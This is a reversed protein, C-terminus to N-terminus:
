SGGRRGEKAAVAVWVMSVYRVDLFLAREDFLLENM